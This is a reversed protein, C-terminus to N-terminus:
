RMPLFRVTVIVAEGAVPTLVWDRSAGHWWLGAGQMLAQRRAGDEATWAGRAAYLLGQPCPALTADTRLVRVDAQVTARRAMVNFDTSEGGLPSCHIAAEGPFPFPALPEVLLHDTHRGTDVLRVGDGELLLITRDIGPFASFPGASAITAISVRWEFADTGSGPPWCAVERTTGGGNKWLAAPLRARDFAHVPM